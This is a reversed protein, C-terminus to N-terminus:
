KIKKDIVIAYDVSDNLSSIIVAKTQMNDSKYKDFFNALSSFNSLRHQNAVIMLKFVNDFVSTKNSAVNISLTNDDLIFVFQEVQSVDKYDVIITNGAFSAKVMVSNGIYKKILDKNNFNEVIDKLVQKQKKLYKSSSVPYEEINPEPIDMVPNTIKYTVLIAVVISVIGVIVLVRTKKNSM